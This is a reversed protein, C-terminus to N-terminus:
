ATVAAAEPCSASASSLSVAAEVDDDGVDLHGVHVAELEGRRDPAIRAGGVHRDDAQGRQHRGIRDLAAALDAQVVVHGLEVPLPQDRRELLLGGIQITRRSSVILAVSVTMSYTVAVMSPWSNPRGIERTCSTNAGSRSARTGSAAGSIAPMSLRRPRMTVTISM